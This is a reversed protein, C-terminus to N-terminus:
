KLMLKNRINKKYITTSSHICYKARDTDTKLIMGNSFAISTHTYKDPIGSVGAITLEIESMTDFTLPSLQYVVIIGIKCVM